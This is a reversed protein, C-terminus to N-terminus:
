ITSPPARSGEAGIQMLVKKVVIHNSTLVKISNAVAWMRTNPATLIRGTPRSQTVSMTKLLSLGQFSLAWQFRRQM